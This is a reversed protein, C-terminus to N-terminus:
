PIGVTVVRTARSSASATAAARARPSEPRRELEPRAGDGVLGVDAAHLEPQGVLGVRARRRGASRPWRSRWPRRRRMEQAHRHLGRDITAVAVLQDQAAREIGLEARHQQEPRAALQDLHKAVARQRQRREVHRQGAARDGLRPDGRREGADAPPRRDIEVRQGREQNPEAIQDDLLRRMRSISMLGSSADARPRRASSARM